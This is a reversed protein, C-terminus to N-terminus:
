KLVRKLKNKGFCQYDKDPMSVDFTTELENGNIIAIVWRAKGGPVFNEIQESVFVLKSNNSLSEDLIYRIVFGEIHFQRLVFLNRTADYSIFGKDIHHEGNPKKMTPDFKSDNMVEIYKGKMVFKFESKIVSKDNGFGSGTGSWSGILFDFKKFNNEQSFILTSSILIFVIFSRM